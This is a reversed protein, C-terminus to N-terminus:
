HTGLLVFVSAVVMTAPVAGLFLWLPAVGDPFYRSLISQGAPNPANAIVTLGGGTVAGAVVAYKSAASMGPVLSALYTIAANDNFSTLATAGFMLPLEGLRSLLPQIWWQQLGGHIVLGALFFGVLVAPRFQLPSQYDETVETFAVFFLFGGVLLAPHHAQWVAWGMAILHGLTVGFPIRPRHEEAGDQSLAKATLDAFDKRFYALYLGNSIVISLVALWGFHVLMFPTTWGWRGAVMLVPPAAFHTLVGGISVNVFLLGLTAYAFKLRPKLAYFRRGLLSAAITMAAPETILSGLLPGLTLISLWWAMPRSGGLKALLHLADEALRLVPRTAAITMIVVVFLPEKYSVRSNFYQIADVRGLKIAMLIFLPVVWIGFVVEVEGFFHLFRAPVCIPPRAEAEEPPASRAAMQERWRKRHRNDLEHAWHRFNHTFFTHIVALLFLVTAWLNFPEKAVRGKLVEWVSRVGSDGYSDLPPPFATAGAPLASVAAAGACSLLILCVIWTKWSKRM